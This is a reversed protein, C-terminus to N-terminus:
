VSGVHHLIQETPERVFVQSKGPMKIAKMVVIPDREVMWRRDVKVKEGQSMCMLINEFRQRPQPKKLKLDIKNAKRIGVKHTILV